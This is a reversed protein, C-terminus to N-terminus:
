FVTVKMYVDEKPWEDSGTELKAIKDIASWGSLVKGYVTHENNLHHAGERGQIIYFEFANSRKGPNGEYRRAAALAGYHHTHKNVMEPPLTYNRYKNKFQATKLLESNGGQIVFDESVRYFITTDFFGNKALFIFNARHIPTDKYLELRIKGYKTEILVNTEPNQKGYETFFAVVNSPNLSDKSVKKKPKKKPKKIKIEQKEESTNTTGESSKACSIIVTVCFFLLVLLKAKM